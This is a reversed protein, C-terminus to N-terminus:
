RTPRSQEPSLETGPKDGRNITNRLTTLLTILGHASPDTSVVSAVKGRAKNADPWYLDVLWGKQQSRELPLNAARDTIFADHGALRVELALEGPLGTHTFHGTFSAAALAATVDAYAPADIPTSPDAPFPITDEPSPM